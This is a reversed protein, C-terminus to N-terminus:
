MASRQPTSSKAPIGASVNCPAGNYPHFATIFRPNSRQTDQMAKINAPTAGHIAMRVLSEIDVNKYGVGALDRVFEPTVRHIRTRVVDDLSLNPYGAQVLGRVHAITVDIMALRVIDDAALNKYGAGAMNNVFTQDPTFTFTGSGRGDDFSGNFRFTGAERAWSFQVDNAVSSFAAPPLGALDRLRAGFGWRSDGASTRLNFQVRTENDNDRWTNRTDATWEGRTVTTQASQTVSPESRLGVPGTLGTGELMRPPIVAAGLAPAIVAILAAVVGMRM